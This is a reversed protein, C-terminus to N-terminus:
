VPKARANDHVVHCCLIVTRARRSYERAHLTLKGSARAAHGNVAVFRLVARWRLV